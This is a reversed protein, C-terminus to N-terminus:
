TRRLRSSPSRPPGSGRAEAVDGRVADRARHAPEIAPRRVAASLRARPTRRIRRGVLLGCARSRARPRVLEVAFDVLTARRRPAARSACRAGGAAAASFRLAGSACSGARMPQAERRGSEAGSGAHAEEPQELDERDAHAEPQVLERELVLARAAHAREEVRREQPAAVRRGRATRSRRASSASPGIKTLNPCTSDVRRSRSGVSM